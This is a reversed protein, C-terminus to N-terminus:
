MPLFWERQHSAEGHLNQGFEYDVAPVLLLYAFKGLSGNFRRTLMSMNYFNNHNISNKDKIAADQRRNNELLLSGAGVIGFL